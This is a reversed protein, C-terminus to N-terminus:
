CLQDAVIKCGCFQHRFHIHAFCWPRLGGCILSQLRRTTYAIPASGFPNKHSKPLRKRDIATRQWRTTLNVIVLGIILPSPPGRGPTRPLRVPRRGPTVTHLKVTLPNQNGAPTLAQTKSIEGLVPKNRSLTLKELVFVGSPRHGLPIGM